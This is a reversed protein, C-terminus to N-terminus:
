PKLDIRPVFISSSYNSIRIILAIRAIYHYWIFDSDITYDTFNGRNAIPGETTGFDQRHNYTLIDGSYFIM